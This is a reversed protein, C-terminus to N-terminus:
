SRRDVTLTSYDPLTFRDFLSSGLALKTVSRFRLAKTVQNRFFVGFQTKPAFSGAFREASNQKETIFPRMLADYRGFAEDPTTARALEGALVYAGIMALASGQGALLSPAFAADGVLAVHGRSWRDMRIQSVRDFYLDRCAQMADLMQPCEWGASAFRAQLYRKQRDVDGVDIDRAAADAAVLLIMTSDDRLAFRAAQLGPTSYGVYVDPDRPQYGAAEFAAATYGLFREFQETPGFTCRRVRSHLGDAGCVLDFRRTSQHRFHVLVGDSAEELGDISDAFLTEVRSQIAQLLIASLAGRSISIFRGGTAERFIDADFGGVRRGRADVFRVERVRYGTHVLDTLVDMREAVDYGVGWFDIIYGGTRPAPSRELLTPTFGYRM